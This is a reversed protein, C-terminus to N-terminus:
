KEWEFIENLIELKDIESDDDPEYIDEFVPYDEKEIEPKAVYIDQEETIFQDTEVINEFFEPSDFLNIRTNDSLYLYYNIDLGNDDTVEYLLGGFEVDDWSLHQVESSVGDRKMIGSQSLTTYSYFNNWLLYVGIILATFTLLTYLNVGLIKVAHKGDIRCAILFFTIIPVFILYFLTGSSQILMFYDPSKFSQLQKENFWDNLMVVVIVGSLIAIPYLIFPSIGKKKKKTGTEERTDGPTETEENLHTAAVESHSTLTPRSVASKGHFKIKFDEMSVVFVNTIFFFLIMISFMLFYIANGEVIFAYAGVIACFLFLLYSSFTLLIHKMSTPWIWLKEDPLKEYLIETELNARNKKSIYVRFIAFVISSVILIGINVTTSIGLDFYS